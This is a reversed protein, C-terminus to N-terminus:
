QPMSSFVDSPDLKEDATKANKIERVVLRSRYRGGPKMSDIWKLSLKKGTVDEEPIQEFVGQRIVWDLEEKRAARVKSPELWGGNVDDWYDEFHAEQQKMWLRDDITPVPGAEMTFLYEAGLEGRVAQIIHRMMTVPIIPVDVTGCTSVTRREAAASKLFKQMPEVLDEMSTLLQTGAREYKGSGGQDRQDRTQKYWRYKSSKNNVVVVDSREFVNERDCGEHVFHDGRQIQKM